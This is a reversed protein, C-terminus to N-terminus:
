VARGNQSRRRCSSLIRLWLLTRAMAMDRVSDAELWDEDCRHCLGAGM